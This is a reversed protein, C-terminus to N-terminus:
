FIGAKKRADWKKQRAVREATHLGRIETALKEVDLGLFAAGVSRSEPPLASFDVRRYVSGYHDRALWGADVLWRRLEVHDTHLFRAAGALQSKLTRNVAGESLESQPLSAWALAFVLRRESASLRGLAVGEKVLLGPLSQLPEPLTTRITQVSVHRTDRAELHNSKAQM